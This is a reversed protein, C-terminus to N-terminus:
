GLERHHQSGYDRKLLVAKATSNRSSASRLIEEPAHQLKCQVMTVDSDIISDSNLAPFAPSFTGLAQLDACQSTTSPSSRTSALYNACTLVV